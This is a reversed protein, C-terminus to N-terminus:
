ATTTAPAFTLDYIQGPFYASAEEMTLSLSVTNVFGPGAGPAVPTGPTPTGTGAQQFNVTVYGSGVETVSIVRYQFTRATAAGRRDAM